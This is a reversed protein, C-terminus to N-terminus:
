SMWLKFCDKTSSSESFYVYLCGDHLVVIGDDGRTTDSGTEVGDGGTTDSGTEVGDGGRTTDSGSCGLVSDGLEVGLICRDSGTEVGDGGDCGDCGGDQDGVVSNRLDLSPRLAVAPIDGVVLVVVQADDAGEAHGKVDGELGMDDVVQAAVGGDVALHAHVVINGQGDEPLSPISVLLNLPLHLPSGVPGSAVLVARTAPLVDVEGNGGGNM